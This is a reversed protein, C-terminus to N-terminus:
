YLYEMARKKYGGYVRVCCLWSRKPQQYTALTPKAGKIPLPKQCGPIRCTGRKRGCHRKHLKQLKETERCTYCWCGSLPIDFKEKEEQVFENFKDPNKQELKLLKKMNAPKLRVPDRATYVDILQDLTDGRGTTWDPCRLNHNLSAWMEKCYKFNCPAGRPAQECQACHETINMKDDISLQRMFDVLHKVPKPAVVIPKIKRNTYRSKREEMKEARAETKARQKEKKELRKIEAHTPRGNSKAM